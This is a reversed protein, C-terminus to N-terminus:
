APRSSSSPKRSRASRRRSTRAPTASRVRSSRRAARSAVGLVQKWPMFWRRKLSIRGDGADKGAGLWLLLNRLPTDSRLHEELEHLLHRGFPTRIGGDLYAKVANLVANPFGDDEIVF